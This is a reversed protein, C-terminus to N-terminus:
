SLNALIFLCFSSFRTSTQKNINCTFTVLAFCQGWDNQYSPMYLSMITNLTAHLREVAGNCEPRHGSTMTGQLGAGESGCFQVGSGQRESSVRPHLTYFNCDRVFYQAMEQAMGGPVARTEAWRTGYDSCTIVYKNGQTTKPFPGLLDIGTPISQLLVAPKM